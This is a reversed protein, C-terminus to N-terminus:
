TTHFSILSNTRGLIEQKSPFELVLKKFYEKNYKFRLMTFPLNLSLIFNYCTTMIFIGNIFDSKM